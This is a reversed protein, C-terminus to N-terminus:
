RLYWPLPKEAEIVTDNADLYADTEETLGASVEALQARADRLAAREADYGPFEHGFIRM